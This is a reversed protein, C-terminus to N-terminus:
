DDSHTACKAEVKDDWRSIIKWKEEMEKISRASFGIVDDCFMM